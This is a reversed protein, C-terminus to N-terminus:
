KSVSKGAHQKKWEKCSSVSVKDIMEKLLPFNPEIYLSYVDVKLWREDGFLPSILMEYEVRSWFDGFIFLCLNHRIREPCLKYICIARQAEPHKFINFTRFEGRDTPITVNFELDGIQYSM